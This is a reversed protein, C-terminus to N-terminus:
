YAWIIDDPQCNVPDVSVDCNENDANTDTNNNQDAGSDDTNRLSVPTRFEGSGGLAYSYQIPWNTRRDLDNDSYVGFAHIPRNFYPSSSYTDPNVVFTRIFGHAKSGSNCLKVDPDMSKFEMNATTRASLGIYGPTLHDVYLDVQVPNASGIECAWGAVTYEGSSPMVHTIKGIVIGPEEQTNRIVQSLEGTYINLFSTKIQQARVFADNFFYNQECINRERLQNQSEFAVPLNLLDSYLIQFDGKVANLVAWRVTKDNISRLTESMSQLAGEVQSAYQEFNSISCFNPRDNRSVHGSHSVDVVAQLRDLNIMLTNLNSIIAQYEQYQTVDGSFGPGTSPEDGTADPIKAGTGQEPISQEDTASENNQSSQEQSPEGLEISPNSSQSSEKTSGTESVIQTEAIEISRASTLESNSRNKVQGIPKGCGTLLLGFIILLVQKM